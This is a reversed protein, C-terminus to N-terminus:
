ATENSGKPEITMQAAVKRPIHDDEGINVTIHAKKIAGTLESEQEKLEGLPLPGAAELESSCAPEESLKIVAEVATKPNFAGCLKKTGTADVDECGEKELN